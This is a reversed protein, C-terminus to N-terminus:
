KKLRSLVQILEDIEDNLPLESENCARALETVKEFIRIKIIELNEQARSERIEELSKQNESSIGLDTITRSANSSDEDGNKVVEIVFNNLHKLDAEMQDSPNEFLIKKDYVRLKRHIYMLLSVTMADIFDIGELNLVVKRDNSLVDNKAM